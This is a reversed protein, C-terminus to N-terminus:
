ETTKNEPEKVSETETEVKSKTETEVKTESEETKKSETKPKEVQKSEEVKSETLEGETSSEEETAPEETLKPEKAIVIPVESLTIDKAQLGKETELVEFNISDEEKLLVGHPMMTYHFFYDKSDEGTIFGYGKKLSFWKVQGKM